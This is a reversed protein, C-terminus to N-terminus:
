EVNPKWGSAVISSPSIHGTANASVLSVGCTSCRMTSSTLFAAPQNRAARAVNRDPARTDRPKPGLPGDALSTPSLLHSHHGCEAFGLAVLLRLGVESQGFLALVRHRVLGMRLVRLGPCRLLDLLAIEGRGLLLLDVGLSVLDEVLLSLVSAPDGEIPYGAKKIPNAM